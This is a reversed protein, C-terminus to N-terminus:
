QGLLVKRTIQAEGGIGLPSTYISRSRAIARKKAKATVQAQAAVDAVKPAAPMPIIAPPATAKARKGTRSAGYIAAGTGIASIGILAAMAGSVMGM